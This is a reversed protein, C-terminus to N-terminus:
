YIIFDYLSKYIYFFNTYYSFKLSLLVTQFNNKNLYCLKLNNPNLIVINLLYKKKELSIIKMDCKLITVVICTVIRFWSMDYFKHEEGYWLICACLGMRTPIATPICKLKFEYSMFVHHLEDYIKYSGKLYTPHLIFLSKAISIKITAPIQINSSKAIKNATAIRFCSIYLLQLKWICYKISRTTLFVYLFIIISFYLIL